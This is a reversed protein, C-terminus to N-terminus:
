RLEIRTLETVVIGVRQKRGADEIHGDFAVCERGGRADAIEAGGNLTSCDTSRMDAMQGVWSLKQCCGCGGALGGM